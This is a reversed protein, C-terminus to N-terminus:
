GYLQERISVTVTNPYNHLFFFFSFSHLPLTIRKPKKRGRYHPGLAMQGRHQLSESPREGNTLKSRTLSTWGLPFPHSSKCCCNSVSLPSAPLFAHAVVVVSKSLARFFPKIFVNSQNVVSCCANKTMNTVIFIHHCYTKSLHIYAVTLNFHARLKEELKNTTHTTNVETGKNCTKLILSNWPKSFVIPRWISYLM